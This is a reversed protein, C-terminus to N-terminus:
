LHVKSIWRTFKESRLMKLYVAGMGICTYISHSWLYKHTNSKLTKLPILRFDIKLDSFIPAPLINVIIDSCHHWTQTYIPVLTYWKEYFTIIQSTRILSICLLVLLLIYCRSYSPFKPMPNAKATECIIYHFWFRLRVLYINMM